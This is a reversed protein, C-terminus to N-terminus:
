LLGGLLGKGTNFMNGMWDYGMDQMALDRQIANQQQQALQGLGGLVAQNQVANARTTYDAAAMTNARSFDM